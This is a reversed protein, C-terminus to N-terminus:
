PLASVPITLVPMSNNSSAVASTLTLVRLIADFTDKSALDSAKIYFWHNHMFTRVLYDQKPETESSHVTLINRMMASWDFRTGNPYILERTMHADIDHCPIQVGRGLLDIISYISRLRVYVMNRPKPEENYILTGDKVQLEGLLTHELFVISKSQLPIGLLKKLKRADPTNVKHDRFRLVIGIHKDYSGARPAEFAGSLYLRSMTNMILNFKNYESTFYDVGSHNLLDSDVDGIQEFFLRFLMMHDYGGAHALLIFNAASVPTMLSKAFEINSLPVYSITPTDSYSVTPAFNSTLTTPLNSTVASVGGTVSSSLSYSATLSAVQIYQSVELYRGRVINMLLQEQDTDRVVNNYTGRDMHVRVPGISACGAMLLVTCCLMTIKM